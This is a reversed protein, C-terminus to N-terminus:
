KRNRLKQWVIWRNITRQEGRTERWLIDQLLLLATARDMQLRRWYQFVSAALFMVILLTWAVLVFQQWRAPLEYLSWRQRLLLLALQALLAAAPIPVILGVLESASMTAESRAATEAPVRRDTPLLGFRLGQLRYMAVLYALIAVCLLV